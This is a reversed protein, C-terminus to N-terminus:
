QFDAPLASWGGGPEARAMEPPPAFPAKPAPSSQPQVCAPSRGSNSITVPILVPASM